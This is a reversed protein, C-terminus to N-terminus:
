RYAGFVGGDIRLLAGTTYSAADSAFYLAAGVIEDPHGARRMAITANAAAQFTDPDWAQAVDTKFPGPMITNVRVAPSYAHILGLTMTNLGAKAIAYPLAHATPFLSETSSINIISGGGAEDMRAGIAASLRFPGKLNVAVTKDYLAETIDTLATYLPSLGANNVLIDVRGALAYASEVLADCEDWHSVNAAVGWAKVGHDARLRQALDDCADQKRSAVIVHAGHEAYAVAIQRGLGRSGGTILAVKGTLGLLESAV